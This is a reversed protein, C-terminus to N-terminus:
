NKKLGHVTDNSKFCNKTCIKTAEELPINTFLSDIALSGRFTSFNHKVIDIVFNFSDKVTYKNSTLSELIPVLIKALKYTPTQLASLILRFAILVNKICKVFVM